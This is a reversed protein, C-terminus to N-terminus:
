RWFMFSQLGLMALGPSVQIQRMIGFITNWFFMNVNDNFNLLVFVLLIGFSGLGYLTVRLSPTLWPAIIGFGDLPPIPLLNLLVGAINFMVLMALAAWVAPSVRNSTLTNLGLIFPTACVVVVLASGFPGAFSVASEWKASRLRSHDIYVAGGPLGIGGMLVFIVPLVVSLFPHTYKLPNFSLYGKTRVSHDGGLDAVLAHGFEHVCVSLVWGTLVFMFLGIRMETLDARTLLIGGALMFAAMLSIARWSILGLLIQRLPKRELDSLPAPPTITVSAPIPEPLNAAPQRAWYRLRQADLGNRRLIQAAAGGEDLLGLLLHTTDVHESQARRAEDQAENLVRETRFSYTAPTPGEATPEEVLAAQASERLLIPNGVTASLVNWAMGSAPSLLALLLHEPQIHISRRAAAEQEANVLSTQSAATYNTFSLEM